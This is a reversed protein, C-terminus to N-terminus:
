VVDDGRGHREGNDVTRTRIEEQRRGGAGDAEVRRRICSGGDRVRGFCEVRAEHQGAIRDAADQETRIMDLRFRLLLKRKKRRRFCLRPFARALLRREREVLAEAFVRQQPRGIEEGGGRAALAVFLNSPM